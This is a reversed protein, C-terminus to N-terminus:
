LYELFVSSFPYSLRQIQGIRFYPFLGKVTRGREVDVLVRKGDVKRGDGYKYAGSPFLVTM